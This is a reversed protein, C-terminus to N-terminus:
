IIMIGSSKMAPFKIKVITSIKPVPLNMVYNLCIENYVLIIHRVYVHHSTKSIRMPASKRGSVCDHSMLTSSKIKSFSTGDSM